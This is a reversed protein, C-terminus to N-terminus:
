WGNRELPLEYDFYLGSADYAMINVTDVSDKIRSWLRKGENDTEFTTNPKPTGPKLYNYPDDDPVFANFRTSWSIELHPVGNSAVEMLYALHTEYYPSVSLKDEFTELGGDGGDGFAASFQQEMADKRAFM